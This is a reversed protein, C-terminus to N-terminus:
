KTSAMEVGLTPDAGSLRTFSFQSAKVGVYGLSLYHNKEKELKGGLIARTALDIFNIKTVKSVFPFSRSAWQM